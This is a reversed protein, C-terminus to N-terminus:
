EFWNVALKILEGEGLEGEQLQERMESKDVTLYSLPAGPDDPVSVMLEKFLTEFEFEIGGDPLPSVSPIPLDAGARDASIVISAFLSLARSVTAWSIAKAGEGDWNDHLRGIKCLRSIVYRLATEYKGSLPSSFFDVWSTQHRGRSSALYNEISLRTADLNRPSYYYTSVTEEPDAMTGEPEVDACAMANSASLRLKARSEVPAGSYINSTIRWQAPVKERFLYQWSAEAPMQFSGLWQSIAGGPLLTDPLATSSVEKELWFTEAM